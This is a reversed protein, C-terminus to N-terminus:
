FTPGWYGTNPTMIGANGVAAAEWVAYIALIRDATVGGSEGWPSPLATQPTKYHRDYGVEIGHDSLTGTSTDDVQIGLWYKTNGSISINLGTIKKWGLATGKANNRSAEVLDGPRDNGSDHLYVGIDFDAVETANDCWWGLEVIKAATAPSTFDCAVSYADLGITGSGSPDASPAETVFGCNTEDVLAM